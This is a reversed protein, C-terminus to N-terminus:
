DTITRCNPPMPFKKKPKSYGSLKEPKLQELSFGWSMTQYTHALALCLATMMQIKGHMLENFNLGHGQHTRRLHLATVFADLLSSVLICLRAFDFELQLLLNNLM